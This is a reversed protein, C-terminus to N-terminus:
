KLHLLTDLRVVTNWSHKYTQQTSMGNECLSGTYDDPCACGFYGVGQSCTGGNQCPNSACEDIDTECRIGTYGLACSCNYGLFMDKCIAGNKCPGSECENIEVCTGNNRKYGDHCTCVFSGVTNTCNANSGCPSVACENQDETCDGGTFGTICEACGTSENCVTTPEKCSCFKSCGPGWKNDCRSCTRQDAELQYGDNCICEYGPVTNNCVANVCGHTGADCEDLDTCNKNEPPILEEGSKCFCTGNGTCGYGCDAEQCPTTLTSPDIECTMNDEQLLFPEICSCIFSGITNECEQECGSTGSTCEDIDICKESADMQYGALCECRYRGPMNICTHIDCITNNSCENNDECKQTTVNMTYGSPCASCNFDQALLIAIEPPNDTCNTLQPCPDDVCFDKDNACGRGDYQDRCNCEVRLFSMSTDFGDEPQTFDCDGQENVCECFRIKVEEVSSSAGSPLVAIFTVNDATDIQAPPTWSFTGITLSGPGATLTFTAGDPITYNLSVVDSASTGEGKVEFTVTEGATANISKPLYIKPPETGLVDKAENNVAATQATAAALATNGTALYDYQCNKDDGCLATIENQESESLSDLSVPFSPLFTPDNYTSYSESGYDFISDAENVRWKEGFNHFIQEDTSNDPLVTGDPAIFENTKDDDFNGLLGKILGKLESPLTVSIALQGETLTIEISL